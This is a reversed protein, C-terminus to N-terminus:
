PWLHGDFRCALFRRAGFSAAGLAGQGSGPILALFARARSHLVTCRQGAAATMIALGGIAVLSGERVTGISQGLHAPAVPDGYRAVVACSPSTLTSTRQAAQRCSHCSCRESGDEHTGSSPRAARWTRSSGPIGALAPRPREGPVGCNQIWGHDGQRRRIMARDTRRAGVQGPHGQATDSEIAPRHRDVQAARGAAVPERVQRHVVLRGLRLAGSRRAFQAQGDMSAPGRGKRLVSNVSCFSRRFGRRM